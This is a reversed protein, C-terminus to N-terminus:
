IHYLHQPESQLLTDALKGHQKDFPRSFRSKKSMCRIVNKPSGLKTFVDAILNM